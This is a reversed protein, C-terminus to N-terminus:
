INKAENNTGYIGKRDHKKAKWNYVKDLSEFIENLSSQFLFFLYQIM